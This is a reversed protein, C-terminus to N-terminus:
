ACCCITTYRTWKYLTSYGLVTHRVYLYKSIFRIVRWFVPVRMPRLPSRGTLTYISFFIMWNESVTWVFWKNSEAYVSCLTCCYPRELRRRTRRTRRRQDIVVRLARTENDNWVCCSRTDFYKRTPNSRNVMSFPRFCFLRRTRSPKATNLVRRSVSGTRDAATAAVTAATTADDDDDQSIDTTFIGNFFRWVAYLDPLSSYLLM